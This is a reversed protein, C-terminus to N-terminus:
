ADRFRILLTVYVMNAAVIGLACAFSAWQGLYALFALSWFGWATYFAVSVMSYGRAMRAAWLARCNALIALCASFEFAANIADPIM